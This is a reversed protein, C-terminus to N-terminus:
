LSDFDFFRGDFDLSYPVYLDVGDNDSTAAAFVSVSTVSKSTELLQADACWNQIYSINELVHNVTTAPTMVLDYEYMRAVSVPMPM